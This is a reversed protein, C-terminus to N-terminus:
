SDESSSKSKPPRRRAAWFALGAGLLLLAIGGVIRPINPVEEMGDRTIVVATRAVYAARYAIVGGAAALVLGILM